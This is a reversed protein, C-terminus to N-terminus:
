EINLRCNVRDLKASYFKVNSYGKHKKVINKIIEVDKDDTKEGFIIGVLAKPNFSILRDNNNISLVSRIEREDKWFKLKTLAIARAMEQFDDESSFKIKPLENDYVVLEGNFYEEHVRWDFMLCIGRHSNAYHSWMLFNDRSETFCVVGILNNFKESYIKEYGKSLEDLLGYSDYYDREDNNLGMVRKANLEAKSGKIIELTFQCDFPDNFINPNSFYLENNILSNKTRENITM